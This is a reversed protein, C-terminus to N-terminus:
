IKSIFLRGDEIKWIMGYRWKPTCGTSMGELDKTDCFQIRMGVAFKRKSKILVLCGSFTGVKALYENYKGWKGTPEVAIDYTQYRPASFSLEVSGHHKLDITSVYLNICEPELAEVLLEHFDLIGAERVSVRVRARVYSPNCLKSQETPLIPIGRAELLKEVHVRLGEETWLISQEVPKEPDIM